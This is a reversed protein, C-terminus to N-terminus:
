PTYVYPSQVPVACGCGSRLPFSNLARTTFISVAKTSLQLAAARKLCFTIETFTIYVYAFEVALYRASESGVRKCKSRGKRGLVDGKGM